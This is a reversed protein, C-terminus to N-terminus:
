VLKVIVYCSALEKGCSKIIWDVAAKNTQDEKKKKVKWSHSCSVTPPCCLVAM